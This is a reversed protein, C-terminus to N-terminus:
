PVLTWGLDLFLFPTLDLDQTTKLDPSNFPEMLLDPTASTDWHSKSSGPAVPDPAYLRVLGDPNAGALFDDDLVLKSVSNGPLVAKIANGDAQSIGVSPIGIFSATGGMPPLGKPQNNVVIVGKAGAAEAYFAKAVFSCTGRDVVAIKGNLNNLIPECADSTVGVGDDALVMKGTTGGGGSLPPGFTAAQAEYIGALSQPNLVRVSPRPGLVMPAAGTVNAGGWVLNGTNVQSALRQADTMQDWFLGQTTDYMFLSYIDPLGFFLGGTGEDVFESFGLGHAFEHMVVNLLDITSAPANNDLGYYWDVGTLCNPNVGIDGNFFAVIDDAFPPVLLGPDPPGPALDVGALKNALAVHYWTFAAAGPPPAGFAFIQITGAAGLVGSTPSCALPQFTSQVVIDVPSDLVAGWLDAALQFVITRQQGLTTGPNGGVPAAPTTDNFGVGPADVNNILINAAGAPLAALSFTLALALCLSQTRSIQACSIKM